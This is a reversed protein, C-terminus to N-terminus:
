QVSPAQTVLGMDASGILAEIDALILSRRAINKALDGCRELNSAIKMAAVTRRLDVAM